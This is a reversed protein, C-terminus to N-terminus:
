APATYALTDVYVTQGAATMTNDIKIDGAGAKNTVTGTLIVTGDEDKIKFNDLEAVGVAAVGSRPLGAATAVGAVAAGFAPEQLNITVDVVAGDLLQLTGNTGAGVDIADVVLNAIATRIATSHVIAM